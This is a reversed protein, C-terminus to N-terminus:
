LTFKEIAEKLAIAIEDLEITCQNLNQMTANVEEASATVEESAAATETSISAVDEMRKVVEERSEDMQANLNEINHLGETLGDISDSITNFLEKADQISKNQEMIIEDSKDLTKEVVSSKESIESVIKIIEDTSKQSQEALKRIQDAVVAFGRGSEGARAAEISANLSLMNTEETIETIANSIFNIKDISSIMENLVNKSLKSNDISKQGKGILDDVIKIGKNSLKQAEASMNNIDGVYARTDHLKEALKEFEGSAKNTSEAQGAAGLSVNQIAESVQNTTETTTRSIDSINESAKIIISSRDEVNKILSSVNNVMGNFSTELVGFEDKRKVVIRKSFDGQSVSQMVVNVRKIEKTFRISVIGAILIGIIFAIIGSIITASTIKDTVNTIESNGVVGVLSWGTVVDRVVSITQPTGNLTESYTSVESKKDDTLSTFQSWFQTSKVSGSFAKNDDNDVIIDGNEDVLVVYGTNLLGIDKVYEELQSFDIDMAVVGYNENNVKIEQSVTIITQGTKADKYPKSYYAFIGDRSQLQKSSSYWDENTKNIGQEFSQKNTVKNTDPNLETWGTIFYGNATSYYAREAGDTVKVSAVLADQITTVNTDFDGRDQLHKVEDKRTLLDVPQSLNKLYNRFGKQTETLTQGSTIEINSKQTTKTTNISVIALILTPVMIAIFFSVILQVGIGRFRSKM